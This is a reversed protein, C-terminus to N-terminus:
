SCIYYIWSKITMRLSYKTQILSGDYGSAAIGFSIVIGDYKELEVFCGEYLDPVDVRIYAKENPKIDTLKGVNTGKEFRFEDKIQKVNFIHMEKIGVSSSVSFIRGVGKSVELFHKPKPGNFDFSDEFQYEESLVSKIQKIKYIHGIIYLVFLILTSISAFFSILNLWFM